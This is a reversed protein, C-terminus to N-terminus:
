IGSRKIGFDFSIINSGSALYFLNILKPYYIAKDLRPFVSGFNIIFSVNKYIFDMINSKRDLSM